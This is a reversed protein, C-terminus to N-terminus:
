GSASDHLAASIRAAARATSHCRQWPTDPRPPGPSHSAAPARATCSAIPGDATDSRPPTAASPSAPPSSGDIPPSPAPPSTSSHLSHPMSSNRAHRGSVALVGSSLHRARRLRVLPSGALLQRLLAFAHRPTVPSQRAEQRAADQRSHQPPLCSAAATDLSSAAQTLGRRRRTGRTAAGQVPRLQCAAVLHGAFHVPTPEARSVHVLSMNLEGSTCREGCWESVRAARCASGVAQHRSATPRYPWGDSDGKLRRYFEGRLPEAVRTFRHRRSPELSPQARTLRHLGLPVTLSHPARVSGGQSM